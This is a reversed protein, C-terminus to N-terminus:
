SISSTLAPSITSWSVREIPELDPLRAEQDRGLGDHSPGDKMHVRAFEDVRDEGQNLLSVVAEIRRDIEPRGQARVVRELDHKLGGARRGPGPNSTGVLPHAGEPRHNLHDDLGM